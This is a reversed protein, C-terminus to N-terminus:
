MWVLKMGTMGTCDRARTVCPAIPMPRPRQVPQVQGHVICASSPCCSLPCVNQSTPTGGLAWNSRPHGDSTASEPYHPLHPCLAGIPAQGSSTRMETGKNLLNTKKHCGKWLVARRVKNQILRSNPCDIQRQGTGKLGVKLDSTRKFFKRRHRVWPWHAGYKLGGGGAGVGVGVGVHTGTAGVSSARSGYLFLDRLALLHFLILLLSWGCPPESSTPPRVLVKLKTPAYPLKKKRISFPRKWEGAIKAENDLNQTGTASRGRSSAPRHFRLASGLMGDSALM